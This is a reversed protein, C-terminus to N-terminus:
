GGGVPPFLALRENGTLITNWDGHIGNVMILKVEAEAIALRRALDRVSSGPAVTVTLGEAPDYDPVYRRLSAALFVSVPM